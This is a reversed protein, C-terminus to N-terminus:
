ERLISFFKVLLVDDAVPLYRTIIDPPATAPKFACSLLHVATIPRLFIIPLLLTIDDVNYSHFPPVQERLLRTPPAVPGALLYHRLM